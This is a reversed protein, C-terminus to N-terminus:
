EKNPDWGAAKALHFARCFAAEALRRSPQQARSMLQMWLRGPMKYQGQENTPYWHWCNRSLNQTPYRNHDALWRIPEGDPDGMEDLHDALDRRIAQNAPHLDLAQEFPIRWVEEPL